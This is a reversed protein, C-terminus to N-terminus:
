LRFARIESSPAAPLEWGMGDDGLVWTERGLGFWGARRPREAHVERVFVRELFANPPAPILHTFVLLRAGCANAVRAAELPTTHYSVIDNLIRAGNRQAPALAGPDAAAIGELAGRAAALIHNAQAEHVLVDCNEAARALSPSDASCDGSIVITRGLYRFRYGVAPDAPHHSVPFATIELGTEADKLVTVEADGDLAFPRAVMTGREPDAVAAGHHATRYGRDLAYAENYGAVVRDVGPPGHVDLTGPRGGVWTMLNVEGLDAIHDSHYHTFLVGAVHAFPARLLSLSNSVMPGTDVLWLKGGAVVGTCSKARRPHVLPSATGVLVVAFQRKRAEADDIGEGEALGFWRRAGAAVRLAGARAFARLLADQVRWLSAAGRLALVASLAFLVARAPRPLRALADM